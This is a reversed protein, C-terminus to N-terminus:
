FRARLGLEGVLRIPEITAVPKRAVYVNTSGLSAEAGLGLIIATAPGLQFTGEAVLDGGPLWRDQVVPSPDDADLHRLSLFTALMDFRLALGFREGAAPEVIRVELGAAVSVMISTAQAPAVDGARIVAGLRFGLRSLYWQGSLDAGVGAGYGSFPLAGVAQADFSGHWPGDFPHHATPPPPAIIIRHEPARPLEQEPLMSAVAFGITRGREAPADAARFVITRDVWRGERARHLHITASTHSPDWRLTAVAGAHREDELAVIGPDSAAPSVEVQVTANEGLTERAAAVAADLTADRGDRSAIVFILLGAASAM